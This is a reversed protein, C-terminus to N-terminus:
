YSTKIMEKEYSISDKLKAEYAKKIIGNEGKLTSIAVGSLIILVAVTVALSIMTIGKNKRKM